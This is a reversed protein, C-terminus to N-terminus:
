HFLTFKRFYILRIRDSGQNFCGTNNYLIADCERVQGALCEEKPKAQQELSEKLIGCMRGGNLRQMNIGVPSLRGARWGEDVM